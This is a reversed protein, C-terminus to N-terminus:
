AKKEIGRKQIQKLSEILEKGSKYWKLFDVNLLDEKKM